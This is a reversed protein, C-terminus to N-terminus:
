KFLVAWWSVEKCGLYMQFCVAIKDSDMKCFESYSHYDGGKNYDVYAKYAKYARKRILFILLPTFDLHFKINTKM